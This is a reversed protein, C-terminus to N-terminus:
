IIGARGFVVIIITLDAFIHALFPALLGESKFRIFGLMLGYITAMAVGLWGNPFGVFHSLGFIIAQILIVFTVGRLLAILGDWILWRFVLEEALANFVSFIIISPLIFSGSYKRAEAILSNIDPRTIANWIYLATSSIIVTLIIYIIIKSNIHGIPLRPLLKKFPRVVLSLGYLVALAILINALWMAYPLPLFRTGLLLVLFLSSMFLQPRTFLFYTTILAQIIILYWLSFHVQIIFFLVIWATIVLLYLILHVLNLLPLKESKENM